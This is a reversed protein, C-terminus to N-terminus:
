DKTGDYVMREKCNPCNEPPRKRNIIEGCSSCMKRDRKGEFPELEIWRARSELGCSLLVRNM